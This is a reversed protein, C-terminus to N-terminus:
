TVVTPTLPALQLGFEAAKKQLRKLTREKSLQEFHLEGLDQYESHHKLMAYVIRALTHATTKIAHQPGHLAQMRRFFAGLASKSHYLSRAALRFAQAARNTTRRSATSIIKGGTINNNPSLCLWATFHKVSPWRNMDLGIESLITPISIASLGDIPTLDVGTLRFLCSRLDFPLPQSVRKYRKAPPPLSVSSEPVAQNYLQELRLDCDLIQQSYFDFLELAQALEFLYEDLYTGQLAKVIDEQSRRCHGDRYQALVEPNHEGAVIARLIMLGTVGTIDSLVTDLQINMQHLAKQIHQVHAARYKLLMDRHRTITRFRRIDEAPRFSNSLLGYSHLQQLWQCDLVDTKKGPVNKVFRANVLCVNIGEHELIDYLPVWYVGTSEMAVSTIRCDKLWHTLAYLDCTFSSFVRVSQTDRDTPVAVYIESAGLDIGATNLNITSLVTTPRLHAM